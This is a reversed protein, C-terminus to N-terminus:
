SNDTAGGAATAGNDWGGGGAAVRELLAAPRWRAGHTASLRRMTDAVAQLGSQQGWYMPGGRWAPFGYGYVYVVDIDGSRQAIGEEILRAGENVLPHLLRALIEEDPIVRRTIGLERSVGEILALVEPDAQRTRGEYRYYGKGTKQGLRGAGVLRELIPSWREDPPLRRRQRIAFGVDNGALDRVALPGMAFGFGEIVRDIQEPTAGEELLFEAEAGYYMLMRNGIFGDCNGALVAVKGLTRALAMVTALTAPSSARGRVNEMLRMVHAPSFFHTGVVQGPRATAAAIADIDLSSTNTALIAHPAAVRDLEAFVARKVDLDEYVAEILIDARALAAYERVGSILARAEGAREATLSGREVSTRYAKDILALGRALADASVELLLVPLGANAFSMAIGTGMTGAGIVAASRIPLPQAERPLQPVRRAAREAFFLHTLARHQPSDRCEDAYARELRLAEEQSQTAAAEIADVARLPALQGRTRAALKRRAEAFLSPPVGGPVALTSTVRLPEGAQAMEGARRVARELPEDDLEDVLGLVLARAAPLTAGSPIVELAAAVGALHTFRLTGGSGPILGLKVEPLALTADRGAVRAHCALALELGGGLCAGAIAAVVPKGLSEIRSQLERACPTARAEGSDIEHLDAGASFLGGAGTLVIGSVTSDGAARELAALLARRLDRSLANVPPQELSLVAVEDALRYHVPV